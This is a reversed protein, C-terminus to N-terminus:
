STSRRFFMSIARLLPHVSLVILILAAIVMGSRIDGLMLAGATATALAWAASVAPYVLTARRLSGSAIPTASLLASADLAVEACARLVVSLWIAATSLLVFGSISLLTVGAPVAFLLLGLMWFNSGTRWQLLAERRQWVPVGGLARRVFAQPAFVPILIRKRRRGAHKPGAAKTAPYFALAAGFVLAFGVIASTGALGGTAFSMIILWGFWWGATNLAAFALLTRWMAGASAPAGGWWGESLYSYLRRVRRGVSLCSLSAIAIVAAAPTDTIAKTVLGLIQAPSRQLAFAAIVVLFGIIAASVLGVLGGRWERPSRSFRCADLAAENVWPHFVHDLSMRENQSKDRSHSSTQPDVDEGHFCEGHESYRSSGLCSVMGQM